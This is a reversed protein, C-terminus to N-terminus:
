VFQVVLGRVLPLVGPGGVVGPSTATGEVVGEGSSTATGEVVGGGGGRVLPLVRM